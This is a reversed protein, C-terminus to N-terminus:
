NGPQHALNLILGPVRGAAPVAVRRVRSQCRRSGPEGAWPRPQFGARVGMGAARLQGPLRRPPPVGESGTRLLNGVARLVPLPRPPGADPGGGGPSAM